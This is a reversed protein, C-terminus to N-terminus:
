DIFNPIDNIIDIENMNEDLVKLVGDQNQHFTWTTKYRENEPIDPFCFKDNDIRRHVIIESGVGFTNTSMKRWDGKDPDDLKILVSQDVWTIPIPDIGSLKYAILRRHDLTLIGPIDPNLSKFVRIPGLTAVDLYSDHNSPLQMAWANKLAYFNDSSNGTHNKISSQMLKITLPDLENPESGLPKAPIVTHTTEGGYGPSGENKTYKFRFRLEGTEADQIVRFSETIQEGEWSVTLESEGDYPTGEKLKIKPNDAADFLEHMRTRVEVPFGGDVLKAYNKLRTTRIASSPANAIYNELPTPTGPTANHNYDQFLTSAYCKNAAITTELKSTESDISSRDLSTSFSSSEAENKLIDINDVFSFYSNDEQAYLSVSAILFLLRLIYNKMM